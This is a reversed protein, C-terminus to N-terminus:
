DNPNLCVGSGNFEYTKGDITVTGTVMQPDLYYWNDGEQLWGFHKSGQQYYYWKGQELQWGKLNRLKIELNRMQGSRDVREANELIVLDADYIELIEPLDIMYDAWILWVESFSEAFDDLLYSNFYSDCLLLLKLDNGANPNKLVTHDRDQWSGMVANDQVQAQPDRITFVELLDEEHLVNNITKGGDEVTITYDEEQLVKLEVGLEAQLQEMIHLYGIHAGRESWHTPDGWNSYVEYQEKGALLAPKLDIVNVSTSEQLYTIIQDTKSVTGIQKVATTFQEPYISHKDYCQIYFFPVDRQALYDATVQYANGIQSVWYDTRLNAHAYDKIMEEDAYNLDGYPGIHYNSNSLLRDFGKYQLTANAAILESRLGMHDMFWTEFQSTFKENWQGEVTVEPFAALTRNEDESVGGSEWRTLALPVALVALFLVIFITNYIKKLM